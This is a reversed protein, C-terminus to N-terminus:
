RNQPRLRRSALMRQLEAVTMNTKFAVYKTTRYWDLLDKVMQLFNVAIVVLLLMLMGGTLLGDYMKIRREETM